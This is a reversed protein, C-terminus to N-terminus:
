LKTLPFFYFSFYFEIDEERLCYIISTSTFSFTKALYIRFHGNFNKEQILLMEWLNLWIANKDGWQFYFKSSSCIVSFTKKLYAIHNKIRLLSFTENEKFPTSGDYKLYFM